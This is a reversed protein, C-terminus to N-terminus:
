DDHVPFEENGGPDHRRRCRRDQTISAGYDAREPFPGERRDGQGHGSHRESDHEERLGNSGLITVIESQKVNFSVDHLVPIVGYSASIGNVELM